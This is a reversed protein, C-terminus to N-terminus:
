PRQRPRSAAFVREGLTGVSHQPDWLILVGRQRLKRGDRRLAGRIHARGAANGGLAAVSVYVLRRRGLTALWRHPHAVLTRQSAVLVVRRREAHWLAVPLMGRAVTDVVMEDHRGILSVPEPLEANALDVARVSSIGAALVGGALIVGLPRRLPGTFRMLLIPIAAM